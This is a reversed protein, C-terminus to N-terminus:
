RLVIVSGVRLQFYTIGDFTMLSEMMKVTLTRIGNSLGEPAFPFGEYEWSTM